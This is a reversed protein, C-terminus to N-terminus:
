HARARGPFHIPPVPGPSVDPPPYAPMRCRLGHGDLAGSSFGAAAGPTLRGANQPNFCLSSIPLTQHHVVSGKLAQVEDAEKVNSFVQIEAQLDNVFLEKCYVRCCSVPQNDPIKVFARVPSM